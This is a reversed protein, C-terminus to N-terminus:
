GIKEMLEQSWADVAKLTDQENARPNLFDQSGIVTNDKELKATMNTITKGPGGGCCCFVAVNKGAITNSELLTKIPPAFSSAWVPTGIIISKYDAPKKDMPLLKPKKGFVVQMGGFFFKWFGKKQLDKVPKIPLLDAGLKEALANAVFQTNGDLSYYIILTKEM